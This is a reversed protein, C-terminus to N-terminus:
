DDVVEIYFGTETVVGVPKEGHEKEFEEEAERKWKECRSMAAMKALEESTSTVTKEFMGGPYFSLNFYGAEKEDEKVTCYGLSEGLENWLRVEM